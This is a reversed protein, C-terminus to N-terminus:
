MRRAEPASPREPPAPPPVLTSGPKPFPFTLPPFLAPASSLDPLGASESPLPASPSLGSLPVTEPTPALARPSFRFAPPISPGRSRAVPPEPIQSIGARARRDLLQKVYGRNV